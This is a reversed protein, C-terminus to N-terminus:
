EGNSTNFTALVFGGGPLSINITNVPFGKADIKFEHEKGDLELAELGVSYVANPDNYNYYYMISGDEYPKYKTSRPIYGNPLTGKYRITIVGTFTEKLSITCGSDKDSATVTVANGLLTVKAGDKAKVEKIQVEATKDKPSSCGSLMLPFLLVSLAAELFEAGGSSEKVAADKRTDSSKKINQCANTAGKSIAGTIAM